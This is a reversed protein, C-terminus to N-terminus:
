GIYYDRSIIDDNISYNNFNKVKLPKAIKVKFGPKLDEIVRIMIM